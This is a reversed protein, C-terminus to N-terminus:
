FSSNILMGNFNLSLNPSKLNIGVGTVIECYYVGRDIKFLRKIVLKQEAQKIRRKPNDTNLRRNNKYWVIFYNRIDERRILRHSFIEEVPCEAVLIDNQKFEILKNRTLKLKIITQFEVTRNPPCEIKNTEQLSNVGIIQILFLLFIKFLFVM